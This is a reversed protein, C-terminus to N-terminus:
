CTDSTDRADAWFGNPKPVLPEAVAHTINRSCLPELEINSLSNPLEVSIPPPINTTCHHVHAVNPGLVHRRFRRVIGDHTESYVGRCYYTVINAPLRYIPLRPRPM